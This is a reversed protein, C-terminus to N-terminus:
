APPPPVKIQDGVHITSPDAIWRNLDLLVNLTTHFKAAIGYLTDNRQVRYVYCDDPAPCAALGQWAAPLAVSPAPSATPVPTATPVPSPTPTPEPSPTPTPDIAPTPALTPQLTTALTAPPASPSPTPGAAVGPGGPLSLGGSVAGAAVLIAGVLLGAAMVVAPAPRRRRGLGPALTRRVREEGRAFRPCHVHGSRLCVLEQQRLGLVLPEELARCRHGADPRDAPAIDPGEGARLFPCVELRPSRGPLTALARHTATVLDDPPAEADDAPAPGTVVHQAEAAAAREAAELAMHDAGPGARGKAV